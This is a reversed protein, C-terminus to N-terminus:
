SPSFKPGEWQSSRCGLNLLHSAWFTPAKRYADTDGIGRARLPNINAPSPNISMPTTSTLQLHRRKDKRKTLTPIPYGVALPHRIQSVIPMRDFDCPEWDNLPRGNTCPKLMLKTCSTPLWIPAEWQHAALQRTTRLNRFTFSAWGNWSEWNIEPELYLM